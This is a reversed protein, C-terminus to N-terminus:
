KTIIKYKKPAGYRNDGGRMIGPWAEFDLGLKKAMKEATKRNTYLEGNISSIHKKNPDQIYYTTEVEADKMARKLDEIDDAIVENGGEERASKNETDFEDLLKQLEGVHVKEERAIDKLVEAIKENDTGDAIQEYLNIADLEGIIAVRIKELDANSSPQVPSASLMESYIKKYKKFGNTIM